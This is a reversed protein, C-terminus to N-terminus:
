KLKKNNVILPKLQIDCKIYELYDEKTIKLLKSAINAVNNYNVIIRNYGDDVLYRNNGIDTIKALIDGEKNTYYNTSSKTPRKIKEVDNIVNDVIDARHYKNFNKIVDSHEKEYYFSSRNTDMVKYNVISKKCQLCRVFKDDIRVIKDHHCDYLNSYM